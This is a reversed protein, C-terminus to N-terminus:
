ISLTWCMFRYCYSRKRKPPKSHMVPFIHHHIGKDDLKAINQPVLARHPAEVDCIPHIRQHEAVMMNLKKTTEFYSSSILKDYVIYTM